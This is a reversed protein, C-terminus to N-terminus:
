RVQGQRKKRHQKPRKQQKPVKQKGELKKYLKLAEADSEKESMGKNKYIFSLMFLILGVLFSLGAIISPLEFASKYYSETSTTPLYVTVYSVNIFSSGKNNYIVYYTADKTPITGNITYAPIPFVPMQPNLQSYNKTYPFVGSASNNFVELVGKGELSTIINAVEGSNNLYPEISEFATSNVFYFDLPSSSYYFLSPTTSSNTTLKVYISSSPHLALAERSVNSSTNFTSSYTMGGVVVGLLMFLMGIVLMKKNPMPEGTIYLEWAKIKKITSAPKNNKEEKSTHVCYKYVAIRYNM